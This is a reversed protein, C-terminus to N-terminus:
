DGLLYNEAMGGFIARMSALLFAKQYGAFAQERRPMMQM